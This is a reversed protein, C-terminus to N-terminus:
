LYVKTSANMASLATATDATRASYRWECPTERRRTTEASDSVVPTKPRRIMSCAVIGTRGKESCTSTFRIMSVRGTCTSKFRIMAVVGSLLDDPALAAHKECECGEHATENTPVGGLSDNIM